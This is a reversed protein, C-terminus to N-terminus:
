LQLRLHCLYNLKGMTHLPEALWTKKALKCMSQTMNLIDTELCVINGTGVTPAM